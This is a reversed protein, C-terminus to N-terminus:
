GANAGIVGEYRMLVFETTYENAGPLLAALENDSEEGTLIFHQERDLQLSGIRYTGVETRLGMKLLAKETDEDYASLIIADPISDQDRYDYYYDMYLLYSEDETFIRMSRYDGFTVFAAIEDTMPNIWVWDGELFNVLDTESQYDVGRGESQADHGTVYVPAHYGEETFRMQGNDECFQYAGYYTGKTVTLQLDPTWAAKVYAAIKEGKKLVGSAINDGPLFADGWYYEPRDIRDLIYRVDNESATIVAWYCDQEDKKTKTEIFEEAGAEEAEEKERYFDITVLEVPKKTGAPLNSVYTWKGDRIRVTMELELDWRYHKWDSGNYRLRYVDGSVTGSEFNVQQANTDGHQTLYIYDKEGDANQDQLRHWPLPKRAESYETGTKERVFEELDSEWIAFVDTMIEGDIKELEARQERNARVGIGAGNYCVENWDIEEPRDFVCTYFGNEDFSLEETLQQLEEQTLKRGVDETSSLHQIKKAGRRSLNEESISVREWNLQRLSYFWRWGIDSEPDRDATATITYVADGVVEAALLMKATGESTEEDFEPEPIYDEALLFASHPSDFYCLNGYIGDSLGATNPLTRVWMPDEGETVFLYRETGSLEVDWEMPVVKVSDEKLPNAHIGVEGGLFHGTGQYSGFVLYLGDSNSVYQILELRSNDYEEFEFPIEGLRILEGTKAPLSYLSNERKEYDYAQFIMADEAVGCFELSENEEPWVRQIEEEDRVIVLEGYPNWSELFLYEGDDSIALAKADGLIM